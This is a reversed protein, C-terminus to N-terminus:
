IFAWTVTARSCPKKSAEANDFYGSVTGERATKPIRCEVVGGPPLLLAIARAIEAPDPRLTPM